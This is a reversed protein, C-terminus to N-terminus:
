VGMLWDLRDLKVAQYEGAIKISADIIQMLPADSKNIAEQLDRAAIETRQITEGQLYFIEYDAYPRTNRSVTTKSHNRQDLTAIM